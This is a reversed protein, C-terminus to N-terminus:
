YRKKISSDLQTFLKFLNEVKAEPVGIGTDRVETIMTCIAENEDKLATHVLILGKETFKRANDLLNQLIQRYCLPDGKVLKLLDPALISEIQVSQSLTAKM